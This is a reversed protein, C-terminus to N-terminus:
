VVLALRARIRELEVNNVPLWAIRVVLVMAAEIARLLVELEQEEEATCSDAHKLKQLNSRCEVVSSAALEHILSHEAPVQGAYAFCLVEARKTPLVRGGRDTHTMGNRGPFSGEVWELVADKSFADRLMRDILEVLSNSAQSVGDSSYELADRAGRIKRSLIGSLSDLLEFSEESVQEHMTAALDGIPGPLEVLESPRAVDSAISIGKEALRNVVGDLQVALDLISSKSLEDLGEIGLRQEPSLVSICSDAAAALSLLSRLSRRVAVAAIGADHRGAACLKDVRAPGLLKRVFRRFSPAKMQRLWRPLKAEGEGDAAPDVNELGLLLADAIEDLELVRDWLPRSDEDDLLLQLIRFALDGFSLQSDSVELLQRERDSLAGVEKILLSGKTSALVGASTTTPDTM